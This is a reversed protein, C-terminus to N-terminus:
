LFGRAAATLYVRVAIGLSAAMLFGAIFTWRRLHGAALPQPFDAQVATRDDHILAPSGGGPGALFAVVAAGVVVIAVPAPVGTEGGVSLLRGVDLSRAVPEGLWSAARVPMAALALGAAAGISGALASAVGPAPTPRATWASSAAALLGAAAPLAFALFWPEVMAAALAGGVVLAAAAVLGGAPLAAVTARAFESWGGGASWAAAGAFAAVLALSSGITPTAGGLAVGLLAVCAGLALFSEGTGNRAGVRLGTALIALTATAAAAYAVGRHAGAAFVALLFGQARVPGLWLSGIAPHADHADRSPGAVWVLGLRIAGGCLVLAAALTSLRPPLATGRHVSLGLGVLTVADAVALAALTRAARSLRTTQETCALCAIAFGLTGVPLTVSILHSGTALLPALGAGLATLIAARALSPRPTDDVRVVAAATVLIAGFVLVGRLPDMAFSGRWAVVDQSMSRVAGWAAGGLAVAIGGLAVVRRLSAVADGVALVLVAAALPASLVLIIPASM